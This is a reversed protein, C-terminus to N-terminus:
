RLYLEACRSGLLIVITLMSGALLLTFASTAMMLIRKISQPLPMESQEIINHVSFHLIESCLAITIALCLVAWQLGDLGLVTAISISVCTTFFYFFMLSNARFCATFGRETEALRQRWPSREISDDETHWESSDIQDSIHQDTSM